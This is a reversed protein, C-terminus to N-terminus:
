AVERKLMITALTFTVATFIGMALLDPFIVDGLSAGRLMIARMADNCYTLPFIYSIPRIFSPVSELPWWVGTLVVQPLIVMPIFQVVQFETRAFNSFLSGLSLAGIGLVMLVVMAEIPSGVMPTSFLTVVLFLSIASQVFTYLVFGVIYGLIMEVRSLPSVLFKEMTGLTRERLFSVTTILFTFFFIVLGVVAPGVSDMVEIDYGYIYRRDMSIAEPRDGANEAETIPIGGSSRSELLMGMGRRTGAEVQAMIFDAIQPSAGDLLIRLHGGEIAVAGHLRREMILKEADAESALRFIRFADNGEIQEFISRELAENISFGTEVNGEGVGHENDGANEVIGLMIGSMEGSIAYGFLAMVVVPALLVLAITRKDRKLQRIVRLGVVGVRYIRISVLAESRKLTEGLGM